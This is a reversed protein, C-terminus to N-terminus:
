EEYADEVRTKEPEPVEVSALLKALPSTRQKRLQDVVDRLAPIGEVFITALDKYKLEDGGTESDWTFTLPDEPVGIFRESGYDDITLDAPTRADDHLQTRAQITPRFRYVLWQSPNEGEAIMRLRLERERPTDGFGAFQAAIVVNAPGALKVDG